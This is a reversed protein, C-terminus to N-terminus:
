LFNWYFVKWGDMNYELDNNWSFYDKAVFFFFNFGKRPAVM